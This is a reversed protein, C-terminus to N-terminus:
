GRFVDALQGSRVLYKAVQHTNCPHATIEVHPLGRLPEVRLMDHENKACVHVTFETRGNWTKLTRTLSRYKWLWPPMLLDLLLHRPMVRKRLQDWDGSLLTLWASGYITPAFAHVRDAGLVHGFVMAAYGGSSTGICTIYRAGLTEIERRLRKVLTRFGPADPLCGGLYLIQLPDRLLIRSADTQGTAGFFDFTPVNLAGQFGTFAIILRRTDTGPEVVINSRREQKKASPAPMELTLSFRVM